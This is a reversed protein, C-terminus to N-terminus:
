TVTVRVAGATAHQFADQVWFYIYRAPAIGNDVAQRASRGGVEVVVTRGDELDRQYLGRATNVEQLRVTVQQACVLAPLARAQAAWRATARLYQEPGEEYSPYSYGRGNSM